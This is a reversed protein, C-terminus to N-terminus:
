VPMDSAGAAALECSLLVHARERLATRLGVSSAARGVFLAIDGGGAGAPLLVGGEGVAQPALQALEPTVIPAGAASGLGLLAAYQARLAALFGEGDEAFASAAARESANAQAGLWRSHAAPDAARLAKVRGILEPTSASTPCVWVEFCLERPLAIPTISPAADTLRYVM